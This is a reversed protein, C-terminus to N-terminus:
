ENESKEGKKIKNVIKSLDIKLKAVKPVSQYYEGRIANYKWHKKECEDCLFYTTNFTGNREFQYKQQNAVNRDRRIATNNCNKVGCIKRIEM